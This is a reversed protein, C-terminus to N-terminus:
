PRDGKVLRIQRRSPVSGPLASQPVADPLSSWMKAREPELARLEQAPQNSALNGMWFFLLLCAALALPPLIRAFGRWFREIASPQTTEFFNRKELESLVSRNFDLELEPAKM